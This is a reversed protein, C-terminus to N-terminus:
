TRSFTATSGGCSRRWSAGTGHEAKLSGGQGLVLDVLDATFRRYRAISAADDFRENLLFHVNGDKAHGFIM